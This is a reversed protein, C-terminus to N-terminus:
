WFCRDSMFCTRLPLPSTPTSYVCAVRLLSRGVLAAPVDILWAAKCFSAAFVLAHPGGSAQINVFVGHYTEYLVRNGKVHLPFEFPIETKGSPFKGPKVM